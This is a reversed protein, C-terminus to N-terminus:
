NRTQTDLKGVIDKGSNEGRYVKAKRLGNRKAFKAGLGERRVM